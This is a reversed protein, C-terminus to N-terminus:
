LLLVALALSASVCLASNRKKKSPLSAVIERRHEDLLNLYYDCARLQEERYGRGFESAFACFHKHAVSDSVRMNGVIVSLNKPMVSGKYGCMFLEDISCMSLIEGIPMSFCDIQVRLFRILSVIGETQVLAANLSANISRAVLVGSVTLALAGALRLAIM